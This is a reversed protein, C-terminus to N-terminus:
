TLTLRKEPQVANHLPMPLFSKDSIFFGGCLYSANLFLYIPMALTLLSSALRARM